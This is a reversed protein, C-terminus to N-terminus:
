DIIGGNYFILTDTASIYFIKSGFSEFDVPLFDGSLITDEPLKRMASETLQKVWLSDQTEICVLVERFTDHIFYRHNISDTYYLFLADTEEMLGHYFFRDLIISDTNLIVANYLPKGEKQDFVVLFTNDSLDRLAHVQNYSIGSSKFDDLVDSYVTYEVLSAPHMKSFNYLEFCTVYMEDNMTLFSAGDPGNGGWNSSTGIHHITGEVDFIIYYVTGYNFRPNIDFEIVYKNYKSNFILNRFVDLNSELWYDTGRLINRLDHKKDFSLKFWPKGNKSFDLEYCHNYGIVLRDGKVSRVTDIIYDKTDVEVSITLIYDDGAITDIWKQSGYPNIWVTDGYIAIPDPIFSDTLVTDFTELIIVSDPIYAVEESNGAKDVTRGSCGFILLCVTCILYIFLENRIKM